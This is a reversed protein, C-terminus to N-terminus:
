PHSPKTAKTGLEKEKQCGRLTMLVAPYHSAQTFRGPKLGMLPPPQSLHLELECFHLGDDTVKM